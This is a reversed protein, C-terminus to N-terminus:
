NYSMSNMSYLCVKMDLQQIETVPNAGTIVLSAEM